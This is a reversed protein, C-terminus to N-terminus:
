ICVCTICVRITRTFNLMREIMLCVSKMSLGTRTKPRFKPISKGCSSIRTLKQLTRPLSIAYFSLRWRTRSLRRRTTRSERREAASQGERFLRAGIATEGKLRLLHSNADVVAFGISNSGIDLGIGYPQNLKTM